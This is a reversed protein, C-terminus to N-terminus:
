PQPTGTYTKAFGQVGEGVFLKIEGDGYTITLTWSELGALDRMSVAFTADDKWRGKLALAADSPRPDQWSTAPHKVPTVRYVGDLGVSLELLGDGTQLRLLTEQEGFEVAISSWNMPNEGLTYTQGSVQGAIAPLPPIAAPEPHAIAQARANLTAVADPNAPLATDSTVAPLIANRIITDEVDLASPSGATFVIIMDKEPFVAIQQGALGAAVYFGTPGSPSQAPGPIWWYYGYDYSDFETTAATVWDPSLVQQGDWEGHHLYLYGLKAMDYANVFLGSGGLSVGQPDALWTVDGIGLPAFLNQQAFELASMGTAKSVIASTLHAV